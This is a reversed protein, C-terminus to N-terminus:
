SNEVLSRLLDNIIQQLEPSLQRFQSIFIEDQKGVLDNLSVRFIDSLKLLIDSPVIDMSNEYNRVSQVSVGLREALEKQTMREKKRLEKIIQVM